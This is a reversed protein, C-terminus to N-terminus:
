NKVNITLTAKKGDATTATIKVSGKKIPTVKNGVLQVIGKKNVTYTVKAVNDKGPDVFATQGKVQVLAQVDFADAKTTTDIKTIKEKASNVFQVKNSPQVVNLTITSQVGAEVLRATVVFKDGAVYGGKKVKLKGDKIDAAAFPTRSDDAQVRYATWVIDKTKSTTGKQLTAKVTITQSKDTAAIGSNKTSLVISNTPVTVNAKFTAKIASYKGNSKKTSGNISITAKGKKVAVVTGSGNDNKTAKAYKDSSSVWSLATAVPEGNPLKTTKEGGIMAEAVVKYTRSKEVPIKQEVSKATTTVKKGNNEVGVVKSNSYMNTYVTISTIDIQTVTFTVYQKPMTKAKRYESDDKKGITKANTASVTIKVETAGKLDPKITLIGKSNISAYKKMDKTSLTDGKIAEIDWKLATETFNDSGNQAYSQNSGLKISQGTYVDTTDTEIEFGTMNARVTVSLTGKKGGSAQAVIQATGVAKPLLTVQDGDGVVDVIAPKKSTWTIKDTCKVRDDANLVTAKNNGDIKAWLVAEFAPADPIQNEADGYKNVLWDFKKITDTTNVQRIEVKTAHNAKQVTITETTKCREGIIAVEVQSGAKNNKFKLVGNKLTAAKNTDNVIEYTIEDNATSPEKQLYENLNVSTGEYTITNEVATLEDDFWLDTAYQKVFVNATSTYHINEEYWDLSVTVTASGGGKAVLAMAELSGNPDKSVVAGNADLTIRNNLAVVGNKSSKWTLHKKLEDKQADTLSGEFEVTLMKVQQDKPNYAGELEMRVDTESLVIGTLGDEKLVGTNTDSNTSTVTGTRTDSSDSPQEVGWGDEVKYVDRLGAASATLPTAVLMSAALTWVMAKKAIAICKKRMTDREEM